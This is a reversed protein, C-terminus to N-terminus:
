AALKISQHIVEAPIRPDTVVDEKLIDLVKRGGTQREAEINETDGSDVGSQEGEHLRRWGKIRAHGLLPARSRSCVSEKRTCVPTFTHSARSTACRSRERATSTNIGPM